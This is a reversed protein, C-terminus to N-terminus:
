YSQDALMRQIPDVICYIHGESQICYLLAQVPVDSLKTFNPCYARHM